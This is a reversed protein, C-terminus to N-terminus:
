KKKNIPPMRRYIYIYIHETRNELTTRRICKGQSSIRGLKLYIKESAARVELCSKKPVCELTPKKEKRYTNPLYELVLKNRFRNSVLKRNTVIYILLRCMYTATWVCSVLKLYYHCRDGFNQNKVKFFVANYRMTYRGGGEEAFNQVWSYLISIACEKALHNVYWKTTYKHM